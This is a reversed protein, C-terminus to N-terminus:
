VCCVLWLWREQITLPPRLLASVKKNIHAVFIMRWVCLPVVLKYMVIIDLCSAPQSIKRVDVGVSAISLCIGLVFITLVQWFFDIIVECDLVGDIKANLRMLPTHNLYSHTKLLVM